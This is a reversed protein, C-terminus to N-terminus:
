FLDVVVIMEFDILEEPSVAKDVELRKRRDGAERSERDELQLKREVM